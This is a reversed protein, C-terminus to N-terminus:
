NNLYKSVDTIKPYNKDGEVPKGQTFYAVADYGEIATDNFFGTNVADDLAFVPLTFLTLVVVSLYKVIKNM